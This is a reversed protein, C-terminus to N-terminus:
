RNSGRRGNARDIANLFERAIRQPPLPASGDVSQEAQQFHYVASKMDGQELYTMALRVHLYMRQETLDRYQQILRVLYSRGMKAIFAPLPNIPSLVPALLQDLALALPVPLDGGPPPGASFTRARFADFERQVELVDQKQVETARDFDGVVLSVAMRLSRYHAAPNTDFRSIPPNRPMLKTLASTRVSAYEMRVAETNMSEVTDQHDISDLIQQAEEVRGDYMMLEILEAHAALQMALDAPAFKKREGEAELQKQLSEHTKYLETIAERILGFRRAIAAREVSSTYRAAENVYQEFNRKQDTELKKLHRERDSLQRRASEIEQEARTRNEADLRNLNSELDDTQFRLYEISLKLVDIELDLRPPVARQHADALRDLADIVDISSRNESPDESFRARCRALNVTTVFNKVDQVFAYGAFEPYASALYYYGDPHDPSQAIGRRAARVALVAIANAEPPLTAIVQVPSQPLLPLFTWYTLAPTMLRDVAAFHIIRLMFQHRAGVQQILTDLYRILVFAEEAEPPSLPTPAVFRDWVNQPLVPPRIEPAPLPQPNFYAARVPDFRLRDFVSASVTRQRTWGLIVARGTVHWLVWEPGHAPDRVTGLLYTLIRQNLVRYPTATVAYTIGHRRLFEPLNFTDTRQERPLRHLFQRLAVFEEADDRHFRWRFDFFTKESPAYWAVYNAFDPQINLLKAEAPLAGTDRWVQIQEAAQKMSRNPEVDWQWRRPEGWPHLWGPYSAAILIAGILGVAARVGSRTAHLARVTREPMRQEAFRQGVAALNVAAVPAAVFALFPFARVHFVALAIAALWILALGAGARKYNVVFGALTLVQLAFLSYLNVPNDREGVLDIGGKTFVGRFIGRLEMDDAFLKVLGRDFLEPPFTWVRYHHPNLMCALIGIAVAKWLTGADDGPEPRLYHGVTYLVLFAPGLFFWQDLNSWLCYLIGVAIPFRWSGAPKPMRILLAFLAAIGVLSALAPQLMLRPASAVLALGTCVVGPFVSTQPRRAILLLGAAIAMFLAKAIVVGSGGAATFLRYLLWDFLWSHNVWIRDAGLYSFPDKGFTYGGNVLLRGTAMHMWFDSNRVAFSSILFALALVGFALIWDFGILFSSQPLTTESAATQTTTSEPEPSPQLPEPPKEEPRHSAMM